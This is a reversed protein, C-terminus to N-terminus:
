CIYFYNTVNSYDTVIVNSYDLKVDIVISEIELVHPSVSSFKM